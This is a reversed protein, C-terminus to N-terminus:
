RTELNQVLLLFVLLLDLFKQALEFSEEAEKKGEFVFALSLALALATALAIAITM